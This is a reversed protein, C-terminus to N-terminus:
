HTKAYGNLKQWLDYTACSCGSWEFGFFLKHMIRYDSIKRYDYDKGVIQKLQELDKTTAGM